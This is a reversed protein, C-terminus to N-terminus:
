KPIPVFITYPFVEHPVEEETPYAAYLIVGLVINILIISVYLPLHRKFKRRKRFKIVKGM